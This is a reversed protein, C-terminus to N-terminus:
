AAAAAPEEAGIRLSAPVDGPAGAAARAIREAATRGAGGGTAACVHHADALADLWLLPRPGDATALFEAAAALFPEVKGAHRLTKLRLWARPYAFPDAADAPAHLHPRLVALADGALSPDGAMLVAAETVIENLTIAAMRPDVPVAPRALPSLPWRAEGGEAYRWLRSMAKLVALPDDGRVRLVRVMVHALHLRRAEAGPYGHEDSAADNCVLAAEVERVADDHRRERYHLYAEAAHHLSRALLLARPSLRASALAARAYAMPEGAAATDGARAFRLAAERPGGLTRLRAAEDAGLWATVIADGSRVGAFTRIGLPVARLFEM